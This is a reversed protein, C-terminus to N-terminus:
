QMDSRGHNSWQINVSSVIWYIRKMTNVIDEKLTVGILCYKLTICGNITWISVLNGNLSWLMEFEHPRSIYCM